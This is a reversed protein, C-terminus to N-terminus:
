VILPITLVVWLGALLTTLWHSPLVHSFMHLVAAFKDLASNALLQYTHCRKKPTTETASQMRWGNVSYNWTHVISPVHLHLKLM